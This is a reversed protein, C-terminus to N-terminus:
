RNSELSAIEKQDGPNRTPAPPDQTRVAATARRQSPYQRPSVEHVFTVGLWLALILASGCVFSKVKM